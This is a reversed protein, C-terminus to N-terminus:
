LDKLRNWKQEKEKDKINQGYGIEYKNTQDTNFPYQKVSLSQLNKLHQNNSNNRDLTSNYVLENSNKGLSLPARKVEEVFLDLEDRFGGSQQLGRNLATEKLSESQHTVINEIQAFEDLEHQEEQLHEELFKENFRLTGKLQHTDSSLQSHSRLDLSSTSESKHSADIIKRSKSKMVVQRQKPPVFDM